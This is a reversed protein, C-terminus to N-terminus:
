CSHSLCGLEADGAWTVACRARLHIAIRISRGARCATAHLLHYTFRIKEDRIRAIWGGIGSKGNPHPAAFACLWGIFNKNWLTLYRDVDRRQIRPSNRAMDFSRDRM